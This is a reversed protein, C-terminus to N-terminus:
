YDSGKGRAHCHLTRTHAFTEWDRRRGNHQRGGQRNEVKGWRVQLEVTGFHEPRAVVENVIPPLPPTLDVFKGEPPREFIRVEHDAGAEGIRGSGFPHSRRVLASSVPASFSPARQSRSSSRRVTWRTSRLLAPGCCGGRPFLEKVRTLALFILRWLKM